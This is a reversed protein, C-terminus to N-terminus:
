FTVQTTNLRGLTDVQLLWLNGASDGMVLGTMGGGYPIQIFGSITIGLPAGSSSIFGSVMDLQVTM